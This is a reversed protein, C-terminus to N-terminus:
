SGRCGGTRSRSWEGDGALWQYTLSETFMRSGGDFTPVVYDERVGEPPM